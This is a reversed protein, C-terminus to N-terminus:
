VLMAIDGIKSLLDKAVKNSVNRLRRYVKELNNLIEQIDTMRNTAESRKSFNHYRWKQIIYRKEFKHSVKWLHKYVLEFDNRIEQM